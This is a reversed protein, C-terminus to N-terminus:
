KAEVVMMTSDCEWEHDPAVIRRLDTGHVRWAGPADLVAGARGQADTVVVHERTEGASVFALVLGACPRGGRLVRVPLEEGARLATPDREPVIELALGLPETWARDGALPEGVRVFTKAHELCTERWRRPEPVATWEARLEDGVHLERFYREIKDPALELLRPKLAVGLVAVGPRTLTAPFHLAGEGPAPAAIAIVEGGLRGVVGAIREPKIAPDPGGFGNASTLEFVLTAGPTAAFREPQLSTDHARATLVFILIAFRCMAGALSRLERRGCLCFM